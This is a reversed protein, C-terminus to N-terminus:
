GPEPAIDAFGHAIDIPRAAGLYDILLIKDDVAGM